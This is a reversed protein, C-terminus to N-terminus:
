PIEEDALRVIRATKGNRIIVTDEDIEVDLGLQKKLTDILLHMLARQLRGDAEIRLIRSQLLTNEVALAERVRLQVTAEAKAVTSRVVMYGGIISLLLFVFNAVVLIETLMM